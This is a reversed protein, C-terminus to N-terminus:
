IELSRFLELLRPESPRPADAAVINGQPDILVFRPIATIYYERIFNSEWDKDALIQHGGLGREEVMALWRDKNEQTDISLGVFTINKDKYAEEIDKLFPIERKCPGCWTAWIDIYVYKGKLDDLAINKGNVDPFSFKPSPKGKGLKMLIGHQEEYNSELFTILQDNSKLENAKITPDLDEANEILAGLTSKLSAVKTDFAEKDLEFLENFNSFNENEQFRIKESLYNNTGAGLGAFSISSKLGNGDFDMSLDYGNKLQVFTNQNGNQVLYFGDVVKLTDSFSGDENLTIKKSVQQGAINLIDDTKNTIKGSITVYDKTIPENKCSIILFLGICAVFINKM